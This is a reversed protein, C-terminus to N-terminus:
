GAERLRCFFEEGDVGKTRGAEYDALRRRLIENLKEDTEDALSEDLAERLAVRADKSLQLAAAFVEAEAVSM